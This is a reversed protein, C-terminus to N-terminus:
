GLFHKKLLQQAIQTQRLQESKWAKTIQLRKADPKEKIYRQVFNIYAWERKPQAAKQKRQEYEKQWYDAFQQYTPPKGAYWLAKMWDQGFATFHFHEGVLSKMFLRTKLDNKYNGFLTLTNPKLPYDVNKKAKSIDPMIKTPSQKGKLVIDLVCKIIHGKQGTYSINYQTCLNKLEKVSLYYLADELNNLDNQSLKSMALGPM